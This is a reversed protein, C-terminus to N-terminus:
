RGIQLMRANLAEDRLGLEWARTYDRDAEARRGLRDLLQARAYVPGPAEGALKVAADLDPLGKAPDAEARLRGRTMLAGIDKPHAAIVAGLAKDAEADRGLGLLALARNYGLGADKPKAKLGQDFAALAGEPDGQRLLFAGRGANMAADAPALGQARTWDQDAGAVDGAAERARARGAWGVPDRPGQSLAADYAAVAGAADGLELLAAGLNFGALERQRATIRRSELAMRCFNAAREAPERADGCAALLNEQAGAAGSSLALALALAAPVIPNPRASRM